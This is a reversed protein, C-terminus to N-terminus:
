IMSNTQSLKKTKLIAENLQTDGTRYPFELFPFQLLSMQKLYAINTKKHCNSNYNVMLVHMNRQTVVILSHCM